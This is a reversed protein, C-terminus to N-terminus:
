PLCPFVTVDGYVDSHYTGDDAIIQYQLWAEVFLDPNPIEGFVTLKAYRGESSRHLDKKNWGTSTTRDSTKDKLRYYVAMGTINTGQVTFTIETPIDPIGCGLKKTSLLPKEYTVPTISPANTQTPASTLTPPLTYTPYLTYTPQNTTQPQQDGPNNAPPQTSSQTNGTQQQASQTLQQSVVTANVQM